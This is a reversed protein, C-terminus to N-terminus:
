VVAKWSLYLIWSQHSYQWHKNFGYHWPFKTVLQYLENSLLGKGTPFQPTPKLRAQLCSLPSPETTFCHLWWEPIHTRLCTQFLPATGTTRGKSDVCLYAAVSASSYKFIGLGSFCSTIKMHYSSCKWLQPIDM